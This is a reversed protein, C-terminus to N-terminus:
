VIADVASLIDDLLYVDRTQYLGRALSIRAKQGGSLNIGKEGIETMDGDPLIELDRKLACADIVKDYLKKDFQKQFVINDKVTMNQIWSQQPVYAVQGHLGVHGQVKEMEGLLASLLSSKGSGVQGVVAVLIGRPVHLTINKLTPREKPNWRFTGTDIDVARPYEPNLDREVTTLDLDEIVFFDKLRKNSVIVQVTQRILDALIMMPQRLLSFLTLSVFAIQPTLTNGTLVYAGFAVLSVLFPSTVNIMDTIYRLMMAKRIITVEKKRINAIVQLMPLEWAYLKVVKIGGIFSLGITQYLLFLALTIQFPSSWYQQIQPTLQQFREVDISMLNVIEGITKDRRAANSLKLAKDYVAITLISQIKMGVSFM